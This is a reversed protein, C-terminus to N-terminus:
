ATSETGKLSGVAGATRSAPKGEDRLRNLGWAMAAIWLAVLLALVSSAAFTVGYSVDKAERLLLAKDSEFPRAEGLAPVPVGDVPIVPDAPLYVPVAMLSRDDHLRLQTKWEGSIPVAVPSVYSGGGRSELETFWESDDALSDPEVDVQINAWGDRATPEVAVTATGQMKDGAPFPYALVFLVGAAAAFGLLRSTSSRPASPETLAHGIFGGTLAGAMAAVFGLVVGEPFLSAPWSMTMWLHSWVWEGALGVTGIGLGAFAAFRFQEDTPVLLAVAEIVLAEVLYLPFHLATHGMVPGIALSV